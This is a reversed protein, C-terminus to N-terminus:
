QSSSSASQEDQLDDCAALEEALKEFRFLINWAKSVVDCKRMIEDDMAKKEPTRESRIRAADDFLEKIGPTLSEM